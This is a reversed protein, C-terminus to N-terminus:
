LLPGCSLVFSLELKEAFRLCDAVEVSTAALFPPPVVDRYDWDPTQKRFETDCLLWAWFTRTVPAGKGEQVPRHGEM